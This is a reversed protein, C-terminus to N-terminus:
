LLLSASNGRLYYCIVARSVWKVENYLKLMTGYDSLEKMRMAAPHEMERKWRVLENCGWQLLPYSFSPVGKQIFKSSCCFVWFACFRHTPFVVFLEQWGIVLSVSECRFRQYYTMVTCLKRSPYLAWAGSILVLSCHSPRFADASARRM